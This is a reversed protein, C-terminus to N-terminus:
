FHFEKGEATGQFVRVTNPASHAPDNLRLAPSVDGAWTVNAATVSGDSPQADAVPQDASRVILSLRGLREAVSVREAQAPTVELTVTRAVKGEATEPTAGEVLHQDVAIVRLDSLVKEAVMRRGSPLNPSDLTQTLILDVHDGPWILGAGGSILDVGITVARMGSGLVAALFGHDGPHIIDAPLIPDDAVLSRRVMAGLMQSRDQATDPSAGAAIKSHPMDASGIDEPKLLAGARLQHAAVLIKENPEGKMATASAPAPERVSIWVVAGFGALGLALLAFLALRLIM